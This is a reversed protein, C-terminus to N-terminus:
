ERTKLATVLDLKWVRAAALAAALAVAGLYAALSVGYAEPTIVAPLRLDQHSFAAVMLEALGIGGAVGLPVALLTLLFLEGVLIYTCEGPGFGLVQLTALDRVREALSIRCINYAIGFAIAAAFALYFTMEVTMTQAVSRRWEAVTDDRSMASVIFPAREVARYFDNRRDAAVLLEVHSVLDGQGMLRNLEGRDMYVSLGAYDRAIATVPLTARPRRNEYIEVEARDGPVLGLRRALADSV